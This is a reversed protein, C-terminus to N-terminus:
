RQLLKAKAAQFEAETLLGRDRLAALKAIEDAISGVPASGSQVTPPLPRADSRPAVSQATTPGQGCALWVYLADWDIVQRAITCGTALEAARAWKPGDSKVNEYRRASRVTAEESGTLRVLFGDGDVNVRYVGPDPRRSVVAFATGGSAAVGAVLGGVMLMPAEERWFNSRREHFVRRKCEDHFESGEGFGAHKCIGGPTLPLANASSAGFAALLGLAVLGYIKM